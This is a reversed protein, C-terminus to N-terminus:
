EASHPPERDNDTHRGRMAAAAIQNKLFRMAQAAQLRTLRFEFFQTLGLNVTIVFPTRLEGSHFSLPLEGDIQEALRGAVHIAAGPPLAFSLTNSM